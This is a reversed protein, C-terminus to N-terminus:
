ECKYIQIFNNSRKLRTYHQEIREEPTSLCARLSDVLPQLATNALM